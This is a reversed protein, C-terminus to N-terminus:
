LAGFGQAMPMFKPCAQRVWANMENRLQFSRAIVIPIEVNEFPFFVEFRNFQNLFRIYTRGCRGFFPPLRVGRRAVKLTASKQFHIHRALRHTARIPLFFPTGCMKEQLTTELQKHLEIVDVALSAKSMRAGFWRSRHQVVNEVAERFPGKAVALYDCDYLLAKAHLFLNRMKVVGYALEISLSIFARLLYELALQQMLAVRDDTSIDDTSVLPRSGNPEAGWFLRYNHFFTVVKARAYLELSTAFLPHCFLYRDLRSLGTLPDFPIRAGDDMVVLLDIDSIGPTSVHGIQYICQVGPVAVLRKVMREVASEYAEVPVHRPFDIFTM